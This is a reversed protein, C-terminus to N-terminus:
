RFWFKIERSKQTTLMSHYCSFTGLAREQFEGAGRTSLPRLGWNRLAPRARARALYLVGLILPSWPRADLVWFKSPCSRKRYQSFNKLKENGTVQQKQFFRLQGHLQSRVLVDSEQFCWFDFLSRSSLLEIIKQNNTQFERDRSPATESIGWVLDVFVHWIRGQFNINQIKMNLHCASESKSFRGM